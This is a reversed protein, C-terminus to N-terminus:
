SSWAMRTADCFSFSRIQFLHEAFCDRPQFCLYLHQLDIKVWLHTKLFLLFVYIDLLFLSLFSLFTVDDMLRNSSNKIIDQKVKM